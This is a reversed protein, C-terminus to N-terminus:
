RMLGRPSLEADAFSVPPQQAASSVSSVVVLNQAAAPPAIANHQDNEWTTAVLSTGSGFGRENAGHM